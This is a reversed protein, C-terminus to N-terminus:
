LDFKRSSAETAVVEQSAELARMAEVNCSALRQTALPSCKVRDLKANIYAFPDATPAIAAEWEHVAQKFSSVVFPATQKLTNVDSIALQVPTPLTTVSASRTASLATSGWRMSNCSRQGSTRARERNNSSKCENKSILISSADNLSPELLFGNLPAKSDSREFPVRFPSGDKCEIRKFAQWGLADSAQFTM